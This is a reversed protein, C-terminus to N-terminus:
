EVLLAINVKFLNTESEIKMLGNHRNVLYEINKLGFGHNETDAKTTRATGEPLPRDAQMPNEMHLILYNPKYHLNLAIFQPGEVIHRCAEMANDLLNGLIITLDYEGLNLKEPVHINLRLDIGAEKASSLKYNLMARIMSYPINVITQYEEAAAVLNKTYARASAGENGELLSYVVGLHNNFDHRESKLKYILQELNEMYYLQQKYNEEIARAYEEGRRKEDMYTNSYAVIIAAMVLVSITIHIAYIPLLTEKDYSVILEPRYYDVGILALLVATMSFIMVNRTRGSLIISMTAMAVIAYFPFVGFSGNSYFWSYPFFFFILIGFAVRSVKKFQGRFRSLWFVVAWVASFAFWFGGGMSTFFDLLAGLLTMFLGLLQVVHFVRHEFPFQEPDGILWHYTKKM